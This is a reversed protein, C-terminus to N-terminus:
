KNKNETQQSKKIATIELVALISLGLVETRKDWIALTICLSCSIALPLTFSHQLITKKKNESRSNSM